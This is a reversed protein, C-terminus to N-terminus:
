LYVLKFIEPLRQKLSNLSRPIPWLELESQTQTIDKHDQSDKNNRNWFTLVALFHTVDKQNDTWSIFHDNECM